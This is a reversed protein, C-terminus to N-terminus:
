LGQLCERAAQPTMRSRPPAEFRYGHDEELRGCLRRIILDDPTM